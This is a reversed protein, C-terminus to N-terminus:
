GLVMKEINGPSVRSTMGASEKTECGFVRMVRFMVAVFALVAKCTTHAQGTEPWYPGPELTKYTRRRRGRM